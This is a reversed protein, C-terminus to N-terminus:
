EKEKLLERLKDGYIVSKNPMVIYVIELSEDEKEDVAVYYPDTPPYYPMTIPFLKDIIDDIEKTRFSSNKDNHLFCIVRDIDYYKITGDEYEERFLSFMRKCQNHSKMGFHQRYHHDKKLEEKEFDDDTISKLPIGKALRNFISRTISWSTGSHGADSMACYAEYASEYCAVGYASDEESVGEKEKKIALEIEKKAWESMTM